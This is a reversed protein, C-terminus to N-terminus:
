VREAAAMVQLALLDNGFATSVQLGVPMKEKPHLGANVSGAPTGACNAPTTLLDALYMQIPDQQRDGIKWAVMPATPGLMVDYSAFAKAFETRLVARAKLAKTYWSDRFEKSTVYTGLLIRRKVEAGFALDRVASVAEALDKSEQWHVGYRLGDYKQMASSFESFALLFYIPLSYKLSPLSFEELTFGDHSSELAKIKKWVVDAVGKDCGDFFEKPIGVRIKKPLSDLKPAFQTQVTGKTTADHWDEGSITDLLLACSLSDPALPGLQDFSMALDAIGYRSITGYTPKFGSAGVFAAPERISGGTDESLTLDCFGAAVAAASGGSSGGPVRTIDLPNKTVRLQSKSCDSGCSFEDLNTSGIIVGDQSAIREVATASYPVIYHELMKSGVTMRRGKVAVSNKIAIILGGMTGPPKGSKLKADVAAAQQRATDAFIEIFAGIEGDRRAIQSLYHELRASAGKSKVEELARATKSHSHM